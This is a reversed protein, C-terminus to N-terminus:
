SSFTTFCKSRDEAAAMTTKVTALGAKGPVIVRSKPESTLVAVSAWDLGVDVAQQGRTVRHYHGARRSAAVSVAIPTGILRITM